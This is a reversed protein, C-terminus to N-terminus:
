GGDRSKVRDVEAQKARYEGCWDTTVVVAFGLEAPPYRHCHDQDVGAVYYWCTECAIDM